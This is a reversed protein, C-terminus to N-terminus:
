DNHTPSYPSRRLWARGADTWEVRSGDIYRWYDLGTMIDRVRQWENGGMARKGANPGVGDRTPQDLQRMRAMQENSFTYSQGGHSVHNFHRDVNLQGGNAPIRRQEYPMEEMHTEEHLRHALFLALLRYGMAALGGSLLAFALAYIYFATIDSMIISWLQSHWVFVLGLGASFGAAYMGPAHRMSEELQYLRPNIGTRTTTIRILPQETTM